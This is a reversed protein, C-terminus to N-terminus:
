GRRGALPSPRAREGGHTSGLAMWDQQNKMCVATVLSDAGGTTTNIQAGLL